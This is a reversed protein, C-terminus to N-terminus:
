IWRKERHVLPDRIRIVHDTVIRSYVKSVMSLLSLERKINCDNWSEKYQLVLVAKTWDDPMVSEEDVQCSKM